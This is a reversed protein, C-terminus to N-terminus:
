EPVVDTDLLLLPVIVDSWEVNERESITTIVNVWADSISIWVLCTKVDTGSGALMMSNPVVVRPSM